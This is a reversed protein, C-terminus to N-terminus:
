AAPVQSPHGKLHPARRVKEFPWGELPDSGNHLTWGFEPHILLLNPTDFHEHSSSSAEGLPLLLGFRRFHMWAVRHYPELGHLYRERVGLWYPDELLQRRRQGLVGDLDIQEGKELQLALTKWVTGPLDAKLCSNSGRMAVEWVGGEEHKALGKAKDRAIEALAEWHRRPVTVSYWLHLVAEAAEEGRELLLLLMALNRAAVRPNFDNITVSIPGEFTDPIANVSSIVNRLDGSAAFCLDLQELADWDLGHSISCAPVNGWLHESAHQGALPDTTFGSFDMQRLYSPQWTAKALPDLCM